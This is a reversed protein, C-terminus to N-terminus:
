MCLQCKASALHQGPGHGKGPVGGDQKGKRTLFLGMGEEQVCAQVEHLTPARRQAGPRLGLPPQPKALGPRGLSGLGLM